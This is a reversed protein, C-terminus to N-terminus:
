GESRLKRFRTFGGHECFWSPQKVEFSSQEKCQRQVAVLCFVKSPPQERQEEKERIEKHHSIQDIHLPSCNGVVQYMRGNPRCSQEENAIKRNERLDCRIRQDPQCVDAEITRQTKTQLIRRVKLVSVQLMDLTCNTPPMVPVRSCGPAAPPVIISTRVLALCTQFGSLGAAVCM